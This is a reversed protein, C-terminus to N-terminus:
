FHLLTMGGAPAVPVPTPMDAMRATSSSSSDDALITILVYASVGVVVWFWWQKYVPKSKRPEPAPAPAPAGGQPPPPGGAYATGGAPQAGREDRVRGVDIAAVRDLEPDGTPAPATTRTDPPPPSPAPGKQGQEEARRQEDAAAKEEDAKKQRDAAAQAELRDITAEVDAKNKADPIRVLYSRYYRIAEGPQGLSEFCLAINFDNVGSPALSDATRFEDIAKEYSGQDFLKKGNEYHVKADARPDKQAHAPREAVRTTLALAALGLLLAFTPLRRPRLM